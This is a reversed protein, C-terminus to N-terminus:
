WNTNYTIIIFTIRITSCSYTLRESLNPNFWPLVSPSVYSSILTNITIFAKTCNLKLERIRFFLFNFGQYHHRPIKFHWSSRLLIVCFRCIYYHIYKNKICHVKELTAKTHLACPCTTFIGNPAPVFRYM